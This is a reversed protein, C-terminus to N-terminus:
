IRNYDDLLTEIIRNISDQSSPLKQTAKQRLQAQVSAKLGQEFVPLMQEEHEVALLLEEAILPMVELHSYKQWWRILEPRFWLYVSANFAEPAIENLYLNDFGCTSFASTVLDCVALSDKIDEFPDTLVREDGLATRLIKMTQARLVRSEKPHPRVMVKFARDWSRLQRALGQITELYGPIEPIPQGYFGVLVTANKVLGPRKQARNVLPDYHSYDLHKISGISISRIQPYRQRTVRVAEEDLVFATEPIAGATQNIDGWFSQLAYSPVGKKHAYHLVAEDIGTDPGSIGTLVADPQFEVFQQRIFDDELAISFEDNDVEMLEFPANAQTVALIDFAPHQCFVRLHFEPHGSLVPLLKEFSVATAPDRATVIVKM